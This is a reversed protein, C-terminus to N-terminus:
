WSKSCGKVQVVFRFPNPPPIEKTQNCTQKQVDTKGAEATALTTFLADPRRPGSHTPGKPSAKGTCDRGMRPCTGVARIATAHRGTTMPKGVALPIYLRSTQHAWRNGPVGQIRPPQHPPEGGASRTKAESTTGERHPTASPASRAETSTKQPTAPAAVDVEM